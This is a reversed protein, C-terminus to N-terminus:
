NSKLEKDLLVRHMVSDYKRNNNGDCLVPVIKKQRLVEDTVKSHHGWTYAYFPQYRPHSGLIAICKDVYIGFEDPSMRSVEDHGFGHLALTVNSSQLSPM